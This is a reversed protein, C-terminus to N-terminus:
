VAIQPQHQLEYSMAWSPRTYARPANEFCEFSAGMSHYIKPYITTDERTPMPMKGDVVDRFLGAMFEREPDVNKRSSEIQQRLAAPLEETLQQADSKASEVDLPKGKVLRHLQVLGKSVRQYEVDIKALTHAAVMEKQELTADTPKMRIVELAADVQANGKALEQSSITEGKSNHIRVEGTEPDRERTMGLYAWATDMNAMAIGFSARNITDQTKFDELYIKALDAKQDEPINGKDDLGMFDSVGFFLPACSGSTNLAGGYGIARLNKVDLVPPFTGKDGKSRARSASRAAFSTLKVFPDATFGLYTSFEKSNYLGQYSDMLAEVRGKVQENWLDKRPSLGMMNGLNLQSTLMQKHRDMPKQAADDHDLHLRDEMHRSLTILEKQKISDPSMRLSRGQITEDMSSVPQSRHVGGGSGTYDILLVPEDLELLKARTDEMMNQVLAAGAVGASKMIDSGAGMVLKTARVTKEEDGENVPLHYIRKAEAVTLPTNEGTKPDQVNIAPDGPNTLTNHHERFHRNQYASAIVEPINVVDDRHEVLPVIDVKESATISHRTENSEMTKLMFFAELVDVDTHCEAILYRPISDADKAAEEFGRLTEYFKVQNRETDSIADGARVKDQIAPVAAKLSDLRSTIIEHIREGLEPYQMEDMVMDLAADVVERKHATGKVDNPDFGPVDVGREHLVQLVLEMVDAHMESNERIQSKLASQGFNSVQVYLVDLKSFDSKRGDPMEYAPFEAGPTERIAALDALFEKSNTYAPEDIDVGLAQAKSPDAYRHRIDHLTRIEELAEPPIKNELYRDMYEQLDDTNLNKILKWMVTRLESKIHAPEGSETNVVTDPMNPDAIMEALIKVYHQGMARKNLAIGARLRRTTMESKSDRDGPSWTDPQLLFNFSTLKAFDLYEGNYGKNGDGDVANAGADVIAQMTLPISNFMKESFIISRTMEEEPTMQRTLPELSEYLAHIREIVKAKEADPLDRHLVGNFLAKNRELEDHLSQEAAIGERSFVETPHPTQVFGKTYSPLHALVLDFAEAAKMGTDLLKNFVRDMGSHQTGDLNHGFRNGAIDFASRMVTESVMSWRHPDNMADPHVKAYEDLLFEGIDQGNAPLNRKTSNIRDVYTTTSM